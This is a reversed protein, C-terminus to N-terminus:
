VAYSTSMLSQLESTHEESRGTAPVALGVDGPGLGQHALGGALARLHHQDLFEELRGVEAAVLLLAVERQRLRSLAIRQEGAHRRQGGLELDHQRDAEELAGVVGMVM